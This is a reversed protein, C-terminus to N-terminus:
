PTPALARRRSLCNCKWGPPLSVEKGLVHQRPRPTTLVRLQVTQYRYLLVGITFGARALLLGRGSQVVTCLLHREARSSPGGGAVVAVEVAVFPPQFGLIHVCSAQFVGQRMFLKVHHAEKHINESVDWKYANSAYIVM